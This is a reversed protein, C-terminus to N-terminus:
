RDSSQETSEADLTRYDYVTSHLRGDPSAAFGAIEDPGLMPM